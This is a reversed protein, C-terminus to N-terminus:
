VRYPVMRPLSSFLCYVSQCEKLPLDSYEHIRQLSFFGRHKWSTQYTELFAVTTRTQQEAVQIVTSFFDSLKGPPETTFFGGALAPSLPKIGPNLLNGPSSFSWRSWYEQRSFGMSLPAQRFVAWPTVFSDSVVWHSFLLMLRIPFIRCAFDLHSPPSRTGGLWVLELDDPRQADSKEDIFHPYRGSRAKGLHLNCLVSVWSMMKWLLKSLPPIVNRDNKKLRDFGLRALDKRDTQSADTAWNDLEQLDM